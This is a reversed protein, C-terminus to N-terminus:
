RRHGRGRSRRRAAAALTLEVARGPAPQRHCSRHRRRKREPTRRTKGIRIRMAALAIWRYAVSQARSNGPHGGGPSLKLTASPPSPFQAEWQAGDKARHPLDQFESLTGSGPDHNGVGVRWANERGMAAAFEAALAAEDPDPDRGLAARYLARVKAAADPAARVAESNGLRRAEGRVFESNMLFLAQQPVTTEARKPAHTRTPSISRRSSNRCTRATSTAM